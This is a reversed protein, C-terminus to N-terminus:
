VRFNRREQKAQKIRGDCAIIDSRKTDAWMTGCSLCLERYLNKSNSSSVIKPNVYIQVEDDLYTVFVSKSIGIQPAALGRGIGAIKRYQILIKGLKHGIRIGEKLLVTKTKERLIPDGLYRFEPFKRLVQLFIKTRKQIEDSIM